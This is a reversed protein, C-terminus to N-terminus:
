LSIMNRFMLEDEFRDRTFTTYTDGRVECIIM